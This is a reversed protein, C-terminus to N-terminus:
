KGRYCSFFSLNSSHSMICFFNRLKGHSGFPIEERNEIKRALEESYQMVKCHYLIQPIRYDAFMTVKDIDNFYFPHSLDTPKNYAGWIDAVFIQARKYFHVLKGKYVSADRFGPFHSTIM